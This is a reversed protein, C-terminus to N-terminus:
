VSVEVRQLLRLRMGTVSLESLSNQTEILLDSKKKEHFKSISTNRPLKDILM